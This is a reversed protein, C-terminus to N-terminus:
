SEVVDKSDKETSVIDVVDDGDDGSDSMRTSSSRAPVPPRVPKQTMEYAHFLVSNETLKRRVHRPNRMPLQRRTTLARSAVLFGHREPCPGLIGDWGFEGLM